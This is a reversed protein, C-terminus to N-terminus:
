GSSRDLAPPHALRGNFRDTPVLEHIGVAIGFMLMGYFIDEVPITFIRIGLNEADNYWVVEGHVGTGTLLGNVVLFPLLLLSWTFYFRGLWPARQVFSTFGIWLACSIFATSTYARQWNWCGIILLAVVVVASITRAHPAIRDKVGLVAFCHYTFLCAYPICLFFLWEELPLGAFRSAWVHDPSFGWVGAHTFLADWPIFLGSVVLLAIAISRWREHFRLRPHFTFLLPFLVAGLDVWAYTSM